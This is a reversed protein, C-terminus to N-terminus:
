KWQFSCDKCQYQRHVAAPNVRTHMGSCTYEYPPHQNKILTEINTSKCKPCKM